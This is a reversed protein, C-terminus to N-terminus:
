TPCLAPGAEGHYTQRIDGSALRVVGGVTVEYVLRPEPVRKTRQIVRVVKVKEQAPPGLFPPFASAAPDGPFFEPLPPEGPVGPPSAIEGPPAASEGPLGMPGFASPVSIEVEEEYEELVPRTHYTMGYVLSVIAGVLFM